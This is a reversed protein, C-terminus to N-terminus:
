PHRHAPSREAGCLAGAAVWWRSRGSEAYKAAAIVSLLMLVAGPLHPKAESEDSAYSELVDRETLVSGSGLSREIEILTAELKKM